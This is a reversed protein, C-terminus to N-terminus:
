LNQVLSADEGRREESTLDGGMLESGLKLSGVSAVALRLVVCVYIEWKLFSGLCECGGGQDRWVSSQDLRSQRDGEARESWGCGDGGLKSTWCRNSSNSRCRKTRSPPLSRRTELRRVFFSSLSLFTLPHISARPLSSHEFIEEMTAFILHPAPLHSQNIPLIYERGDPNKTETAIGVDVVRGDEKQVWKMM